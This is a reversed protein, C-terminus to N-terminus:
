QNNYITPEEPTHETARCICQNKRRKCVPCKRKEEKAIARDERQLFDLDLGRDELFDTHSKKARDRKNLWINLNNQAVETKQEAQAREQELSKIEDKLASVDDNLPEYKARLTKERKREVMSGIFATFLGLLSIELIGFM